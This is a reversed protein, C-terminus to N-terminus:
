FFFRWFVLCPLIVWCVGGRPAKWWISPSKATISCLHSSFPTYSILSITLVSHCQVSWAWCHSQGVFIVKASGSLLTVSAQATNTKKSEKVLEFMSVWRYMDLSSMMKRMRAMTSVQLSLSVTTPSPHLHFPSQQQRVCTPSKYLSAKAQLAISCSRTKLTYNQSAVFFSLIFGFPKAYRHPRPNNNHIPLSTSTTFLSEIGPCHM